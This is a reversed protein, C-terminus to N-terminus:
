AWLELEKKYLRNILWLTDDYFSEFADQDKIEPFLRKVKTETKITIQEMTLANYFKLDSINLSQFPKSDKPGRKRIIDLVEGISTNEHFYQSCKYTTSIAVFDVGPKLGYLDNAPKAARECELLTKALEAVQAHFYTKGNLRYSTRKVLANGYVDNKYSEVRNTTTNFGYGSLERAMNLSQKSANTSATFDKFNSFKVIAM